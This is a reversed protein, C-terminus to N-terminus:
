RRGAVGSTISGNRCRGDQEERSQGVSFTREEEQKVDDRLKQMGEEAAANEKQM